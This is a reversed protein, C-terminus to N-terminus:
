ASLVPNQDRHAWRDATRNETGPIIVSPVGHPDFSDRLGSIQEITPGSVQGTAIRDHLEFGYPVDIQGSTEHRVKRGSNRSSLGYFRQSFKKLRKIM